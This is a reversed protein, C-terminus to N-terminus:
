YVVLITTIEIIEFIRRRVLKSWHNYDFLYFYKTTNIRETVQGHGTRFNAITRLFTGTKTM